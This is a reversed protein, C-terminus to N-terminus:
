TPKEGAPLVLLDFRHPPYLCRAAIMMEDVDSGQGAMEWRTKRNMADPRYWVVFSPTRHLKTKLAPKDNEVRRYCSYAIIGWLLLVLAMVALSFLFDEM